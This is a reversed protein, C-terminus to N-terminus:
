LPRACPSISGSQREPTNASVAGGIARYPGTAAAWHRARLHDTQDGINDDFWMLLAIRLLLLNRRAELTVKCGGKDQPEIWIEFTGEVLSRNKPNVEGVHHYKAHHPEDRELITMTQHEFVSAGLAYRAEFTDPDDPDQDLECLLSDWHAEIAAEGPVLESWLESASKPSVFSRRSRHDVWIRFRDLVEGYLVGLIGFCVVMPLFPGIYPLQFLSPFLLGLATNTFFILALLELMTRWKPIILVLVAGCAFVGVAVILATLFLALGTIWAPGVLSDPTWHFRMVNMMLALTTFFSTFLLRRRQRYILRLM